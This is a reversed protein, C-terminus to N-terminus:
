LLGEFLQVRVPDGVAVDAQQEPLVIFCNAEVMSRLVGSGQNGCPRAKWTGDDDFLAGRVFETRGISKAIPAACPVTLLPREPLPDVGALRQLVDVVLQYFTVLVAVPNGPLGFLWANGIRGFAMPRGPKIAVKWFQVTGLRAMLSKVFDAEGVSVGGSTVVADAIAAANRFAQELAAPDDRVVGLDLLEVDLRRLAATLTFRNSDYIEGPALTRGISAIEDGTSVIVVRVRRRVAVEAVGLSALLGLEAPGVRRGARLAPQGRALDEGARRVNQGPRIGPPVEVSEGDARASEQPVVADAGRPLVAGTMVRVSQGAGVSGGFARGALATGVVALRTTRAGDADEARLAYGDMACNVHAPVDFPAVVDRDLVRGLAERLAVTEWDTLPTVSQLMTRRADELSLWGADSAETDAMTMSTPAEHMTM